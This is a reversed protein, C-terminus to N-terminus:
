WGDVQGEAKARGEHRGWKQEKDREMSDGSLQGGESEVSDSL